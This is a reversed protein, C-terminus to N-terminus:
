RAVRDGSGRKKRVFDALAAISDFNAPVLEDDTVEIGFEKEVFTVIELVGTSDIIGHELLSTAEGLPQDDPLYFNAAIFARVRDKDSSPSAEMM